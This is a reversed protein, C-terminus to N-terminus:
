FTRVPKGPAHLGPEIGPPGFTVFHLSPALLCVAKGTDPISPRLMAGYALSAPGRGCGNLQSGHGIGPPGFTTNKRM